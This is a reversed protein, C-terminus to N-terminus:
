EHGDAEACNKFVLESYTFDIAKIDRSESHIFFTVEWSALGARLFDNKLSEVEVGSQALMEDTEPCGLKGVKEWPPSSLLPVLLAKEFPPEKRNSPYADTDLLLTVEDCQNAFRVLAPEGLAKDYGIKEHAFQQENCFLKVAFAADGPSFFIGWSGHGDDDGGPLISGSRLIQSLRMPPRSGELSIVFTEIAINFPLVSPGGGSLLKM